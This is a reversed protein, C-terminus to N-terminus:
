SGTEPTKVWELPENLGIEASEESILENEINKPTTKVSLLGHNEYEGWNVNYNYLSQSRSFNSFFTRVKM